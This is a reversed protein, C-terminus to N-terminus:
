HRSPRRRNAHRIEPTRPQQLLSHRPHDDTDTRRVGDSVRGGSRAVAHHSPSRIACLYRSPVPRHRSRSPRRGERGDEVLVGARTRPGSANAMRAAPLVPQPSVRAARRRSAATAGSAPYSTRTGRHPPVDRATITRPRNTADACTHCSLRNLPETPLFFDAPALRRAGAGFGLALRLDPNLHQLGDDPGAGDSPPQRQRHAAGVRGRRRPGVM